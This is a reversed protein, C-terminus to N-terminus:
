DQWIKNAGLKIFPMSYWYYRKESLSPATCNYRSRSTPLTGEYETIIKIADGEVEKKTEMPKGAYYCQLGYVNIDHKKVTLKLTPTPDDPGYLKAAPETSIINFPLSKIKTKLTNTNAYIGSAPFRPIAQWDTTQNIPGSQQSFGLYGQQKLLQKLPLDFEGYPYAVWKNKIDLKEELIRQAKNIDESTRKLWQEDTENELRALLHNHEYTHNSITAGNEIIEKLQQWTMQSSHKELTAKPNIFVTFPYGKEKLLPYANEYISKFGDDFTIALTDQKFPKGSQITEIITGLPLVQVGLEEILNLHKAFTEPSVSTSNPTKSDM